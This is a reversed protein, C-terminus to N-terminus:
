GILLGDGGDDEIIRLGELLEVGEDMGTHPLIKERKGVTMLRSGVDNELTGDGVLIAEIAKDVLNDTDIEFLFLSKAAEFQAVMGRALLEKGTHSVLEWSFFLHHTGVIHNEVILTVRALTLDPLDV